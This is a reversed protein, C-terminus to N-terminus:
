SMAIVNCRIGRLSTQPTTTRCCCSSAEQDPRHLLHPPSNRRSRSGFNSVCTRDMLFQFPEDRELTNQRVVKVCLM